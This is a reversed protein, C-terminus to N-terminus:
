TEQNDEDGGFCVRQAAAAATAMAALREYAAHYSALAEADDEDDLVPVTGEDDDLVPAVGEEDDLASAAGDM